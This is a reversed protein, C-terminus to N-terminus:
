RRVIKKIKVYTRYFSQSYFFIRCEIKANLSHQIKLLEKSYKKYIKKYFKYYEKYKITDIKENINNTYVINYFFKIYSAREIEAEKKLEKENHILYLYRKEEIKELDGLFRKDMNKLISGERQVYVYQPTDQFVVCNAKEFLLYTTAFDEMLMNKPYRTNDFLKKKYLKNWAHNTIEEDLLLKRIAEKRSFIKTENKYNKQIYKNKKENYKVYECISIDANSSILNKYLTEYMTEKIFDDGDVFALYQGTALEIGCNRAESLGGNEKHIVKIREDNEAFDDCIKGCRDPSGDDVLIIELNKYTQSIVSEICREIYNEVKYVPIIVSILEKKM